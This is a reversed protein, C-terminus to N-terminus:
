EKGRYKQMVERARKGGVVITGTWDRNKHAYNRIIEEDGHAKPCARSWTESQYNIWNEPLAYFELAADKEALESKLNSIVEDFKAILVAQVRQEHKLQNIEENESFTMGEFDSLRKKFSEIKDNLEILGIPMIKHLREIEDFLSVLTSANFRVFNIEDVDVDKLQERLKRIEDLNM